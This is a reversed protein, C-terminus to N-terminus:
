FFFFYQTTGIPHECSLSFFLFGKSNWNEENPLYHGLVRICNGPGSPQRNAVFGVQHALWRCMVLDGLLVQHDVGAPQRAMQVGHLLYVCVEPHTSNQM